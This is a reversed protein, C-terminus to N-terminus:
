RGESYLLWGHGNGPALVVLRGSPWLAISPRPMGTWVEDSLPQRFLIPAPISLRNKDGALRREPTMHRCIVCSLCRRPLCFADLLGTGISKLCGSLPLVTNVATVRHTGGWAVKSLLQM